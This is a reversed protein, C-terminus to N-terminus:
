EWGGGRKKGKKTLSETPEKGQKGGRDNRFLRRKREHALHTYKNGKKRKRLFCPTVKKKKVKRSSVRGEEKLVFPVVDKREERRRSNFLNKREVRSLAWCEGGSIL